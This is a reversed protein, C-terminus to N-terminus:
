SRPLIKYTISKKGTYNGKGTITLTCTGFSTPNSYNVTYDVDKQLKKTGYMVTPSPLCPFTSVYYESNVGSISATSLSYKISFEKFVYGYYKGTGRVYLKATGIEVNDTYYVIYDVDKALLKGNYKVIPEPTIQNGTYSYTANIGEIKTNSNRIALCPLINFSTKVSEKYKGLGVVTLTCKGYSTPNSYIIYYDKNVKLTNGYCDVVTPTPLCPFTNTYYENKIGRISASAISVKNDSIKFHQLVIGSYKGKGLICVTARGIETNHLYSVDYDKGKTLLNDKYKVIPEPKIAKNTYVYLSNVNSITTNSNTLYISSDVKYDIKISNTYEGKGTIIVSASGFNVPNTYTLTYDVDKVLNKVESGDTLVLKPSPLCPFTNVYYTDEINEIALRGANFEDKLDYKAIYYYKSYKQSIKKSGLISKINYIFKVEANRENTQVLDKTESPFVEKFALRVYQDKEVLNYKKLRTAVSRQIKNSGKQYHSSYNDIGYSFSKGPDYEIISNCFDIGQVSLEFVDAVGLTALDFVPGLIFNSIATVALPGLIELTAGLSDNAYGSAYQMTYLDPNNKALQVSILQENDASPEIAIGNSACKVRVEAYGMGPTDTGKIRPMSISNSWVIYESTLYTVNEPEGPHYEKDTDTFVVYSYNNVHDYHTGIVNFCSEPIGVKEAEDPYIYKKCCTIGNGDVYELSIYKIDDNELSNKDDDLNTNNNNKEDTGKFNDFDVRNESIQESNITAANVVFNQSLGFIMAMSMFISLRKKLLFGKLNM